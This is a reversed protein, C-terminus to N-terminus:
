PTRLLSSSLSLVPQEAKMPGSLLAFKTCPNESACFHKVKEFQDDILALQNNRRVSSTTSFATFRSKTEEEPFPDDDDFDSGFEAGDSLESDDSAVDDDDEKEEMEDMSDERKRCFFLKQRASDSDSLFSGQSFAALDEQDSKPAPVLILPPAKTSFVSEKPRSTKLALTANQFAM